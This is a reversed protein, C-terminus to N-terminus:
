AIEVRTVPEGSGIYGNEGMDAADRLARRVNIYRRRHQPCPGWEALAAAHTPTIYGKHQAFEYRPWEDHLETMIADRTVKALISAAAICAVTADGKWLATSPIGLGSVPFGDTLAYHPSPTLTGLARRMGALNAVHLGFADIEEAPIVIISYAVARATVQHYLRERTAATLVKSDDLGDIRGRRGGPLICAAVVLPGACAGRGAEDAGAVHEFGARGLASEYGGLPGDRRVVLRPPRFHLGSNSVSTTM